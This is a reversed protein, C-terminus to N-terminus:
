LGSVPSGSSAVLKVDPEPLLMPSVCIMSHAGTSVECREHPWTWKAYVFGGHTSVTPPQQLHKPSQPFLRQAPGFWGLSTLALTHFLRQPLVWVEQGDDIGSLLPYLTWTIVIVLSPVIGALLLCMGTLRGNDDIFPTPYAVHTM